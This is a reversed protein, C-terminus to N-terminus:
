ALYGTCTSSYARRSCRRQRHDPMKKGFWRRQVLAIEKGGVIAISQYVLILTFVGIIAAGASIVSILLSHIEM